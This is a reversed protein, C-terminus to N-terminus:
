RRRSVPAAKRTDQKLTISDKSVVHDYIKSYEWLHVAKFHLNDSGNEVFDMVHTNEFLTAPSSLSPRPL